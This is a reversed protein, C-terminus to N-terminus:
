YGAARAYEDFVRVAEDEAWAPRRFPLLPHEGDDGPPATVDRCEVAALEDLPCVDASEYGYGGDCDRGWASCERRVRDGEHTWTTVSFHYGEDAPGGETRTLTQGPRLTLRVWGGAEWTWFRVAPVPHRHGPRSARRGM